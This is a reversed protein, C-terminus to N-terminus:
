GPVQQKGGDEESKANRSEQKALVDNCHEHGDFQHQVRHVEAEHCEGILEFFDVTVDVGEKDHNDGSGLRGNSQANDEGDELISVSQMNVFYATQFVSLHLM